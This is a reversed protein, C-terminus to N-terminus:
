FFFPSINVPAISTGRYGYKVITEVAAEKLNEIKQPDTVRAM